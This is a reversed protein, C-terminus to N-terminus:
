AGATHGAVAEPEPGMEAQQGILAEIKHRPASVAVAWYYIGLSFGAVTVMDWWFPINNTNVPPAVAGGSFQGQWSIIGLGILYAPLWLASRWEMPPRQKDFLMSIGILVYGIVIAIGLKWVVEFGAWYIMLNAVIFAIPCLVPAWTMRYAREYDPLRRRFAALSLPAGGYMVLAADTVLSVLSHWSPFPLLFVLGFLFAFILSVWPIGRKNVWTFIQPYYRNRGLGYGVRSTATLYINGTASPSIFADIRLLIALWSFGVLGALGAFPGTSIVAVNNLGAWGHSLESPPIAATFAVQLLLYILTGIMMAFIIARPLNRQPNKIEAALQDAQEFGTYAFIIGASPIAAFLAKVGFPMFGGASTFNSGHFKTLLVIIALVPIAIKWWTFTSNVINFVRMALFNVCTFLLMLLVTLAFGAGTVVGTSSNYLGHDYYSIYQFFAFCEIPATTIAQLWSFFGFSTGAVSGFAFHPFRATGGAVPFMAGLEAHALALITVAVGGIIWGILAAPGAAVSAYFAGFLWGSGIISTESAWTAGILGM